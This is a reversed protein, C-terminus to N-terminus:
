RNEGGKAAPRRNLPDLRFELYSLFSALLHAVSFYIVATVILPFFAEYTRSRIIDSMKTLDQIAIYGVISTMKLMNIFEGRYVPLVRRLVQPLIVKRFAAFKSFGLALAAESQGRHISEIGTRFMEGAYAAFNLAFAIVAVIIANIEVRAFVVYYLIMLIVLMPMGQMLAIFCRASVAFMQRKSRRMACVGFALATGFAAALATILVTVKLGDCILKWRDERIFTREFSAALGRGIGSLWQRFGATGSEPVGSRPLIVVIGGKYNPESFHMKQKREETVTFCGAGFRVKGSAVAEIFGSLEMVVPELAYGLKEAALQAVEIDYGTVRGNRLLTFPEFQPSTACRLVGKEPNLNVPPLLQKSEDGSFWKEELRKLTGDAKMARIERSFADCLEQEGPSFVFAYDNALLPKEMATLNPKIKLLLRAQPEDMLFADVKGTELAIVQDNFTNFYVLRSAPLLTRAAQDCSSGTMVGVRKGDLRSLGSAEGTGASQPRRALIALGGEYYCDAFDVKEKREATISMAGGVVDARGSMLAEILSGFSLPIFEFKMDLEYAIRRVLEVDLGVAKGDAGAYCMPELVPDSAFKLTGNKGQFDKRHTWNALTKRLVDAGCWKDTLRDLEGSRKLDRIVASAKGALPSGKRFAYGYFDAAYVCALHLEGSFQAAYLRAVPEDLLVADVRGSRLAQVSSNNDNFFLYEAGDVLPETLQQFAAGTLSAARKGKLDKVTAITDDKAKAGAARDRHVIVSIASDVYDDSFLMKERREGLANLSAVLLDIKGTEVAPILGDFTMAVVETKANLFLALRRIFELDFGTLKGDKGYYNMPENLGETGVTLRRSPNEPVPIEPMPPPNESFWRRRMDQYTGDARYRAIFRNVEQHLEKARPPLGVVIHEEAIDAPLLALSRNVQVVYELNHRDFVFADIKKQQVATYGDTLSNYYRIKAKDFFREGATMAAAGQPVGIVCGARNLDGPSVIRGTKPVNNGPGCASLLLLVAALAPFCFLTRRKM